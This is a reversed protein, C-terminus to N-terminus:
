SRVIWWYRCCMSFSSATTSAARAAELRHSASLVDQRTPHQQVALACSIWSARSVYLMM